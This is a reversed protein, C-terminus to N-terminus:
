MANVTHAEAVAQLRRHLDRVADAPVGSVVFCLNRYIWVFGRGPGAAMSRVSVSGLNDPDTEFSVRKISSSTTEGFFYDAARFRDRAQAVTVSVRAGDYRGNFVYEKIGDLPGIENLHQEDNEIKLAEFGPIREKALKSWDFAVIMRGDDTAFKRDFDIRSKYEDIRATPSFARPIASTRADPNAVNRSAPMQAHSVGAFISYLLLGIVRKKM